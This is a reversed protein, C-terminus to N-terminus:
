CTCRGPNWGWYRFFPFSPFFSFNWIKTGFFL